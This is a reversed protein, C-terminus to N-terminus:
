QLGATYDYLDYICLYQYGYQSLFQPGSKHFRDRGDMYM